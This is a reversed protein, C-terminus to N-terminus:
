TLHVVARCTHCPLLGRKRQICRICSKCYEEVEPKMCPWYFHDRVLEYTKDFGLHGTDDHLSKLVVKRYKEPLMLQSRSTRDPPNTVQYLVKDKMELKDWERLLPSTTPHRAKDVKSIDKQSFASWIGGICPDEQQAASLEFPSLAPLEKRSLMTLNCYEQPIAHCSAGLHDVARSSAGFESKDLISLQCMARVGSAPIDTWEQHTELSTHVGPYHM